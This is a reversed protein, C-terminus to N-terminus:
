TRESLYKFLKALLLPVSVAIPTIIVLALLSAIFDDFPILAVADLIKAIYDSIM